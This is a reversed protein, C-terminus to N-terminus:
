LMNNMPYKASRDPRINDTIMVKITRRNDKLKVIDGCALKSRVKIFGCCLGKPKFGEPKSPSAISFIKGDHRGIAMDTVCTLVTGINKDKSNLVVSNEDVSIKRLDYGSFAYTYEPQKIKELADSGIFKKTFNKKGTTYPLSFDWPTHIFPWQGIDQHSLPLMAGARLSDRAALGCPVMGKDKGNKILQDWVSVTDESSMFLEFGFEGTYGTRSLLIPCNDNTYVSHQDSLSTDWFGKFTFYPMKEFIKEPNQLISFLIKAAAPGQIDIKGIRDSVNEIKFDQSPFHANFHHIITDAKGSNVVIMFLDKNIQYIIADDITEGQSNLFAGYICANNQLIEKKSGFRSNLDRTFAAQLVDFAEPGKIMLVDMHSTDFIGAGEIVALHEKKAGTTYWLPMEYKGFVVM